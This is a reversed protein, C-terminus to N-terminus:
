TIIMTWSTKIVNKLEYNRNNIYTNHIDFSCLKMNKDTNTNILSQSLNHSNQVNFVNPLMLTKNVLTNIHEAIKYRPREKWNVIPRIM